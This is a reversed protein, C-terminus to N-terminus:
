RHVVAAHVMATHAIHVFARHVYTRSVAYVKVSSKDNYISKVQFVSFRQRTKRQHCMPEVVVRSSERAATMRM